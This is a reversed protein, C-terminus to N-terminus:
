KAWEKARYTEYAACEERWWRYYQRQRWTLANM